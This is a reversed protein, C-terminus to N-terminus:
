TNLPVVLETGANQALGSYAYISELYLNVKRDILEFFLFIFYYCIQYAQTNRSSM